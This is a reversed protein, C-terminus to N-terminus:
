APLRIRWIAYPLVAPDLRLTRFKGSWSVSSQVILDDLELTADDPLGYTWLPIELTTQQTERPDLTIAVLVVNSRDPTAKEFFMIRDDSSSLFTLGLQTQLAPNRRRIDNLQRIEDVINGPRQWDWARIQYKESDAYEERGPLAAAECLEFGCYVGWLGSLTAALAARILFGPRGSTQLFPPNIDPTNVFFNPGFFEAANTTLESLYAELEARTNRWTFYTYSQTFGIKALRYMVKPKTFAEALFITDPYEAKIDAIMWEWFPLPKTHPNDVRFIRVGEQVWFRVVDRLAEWLQPVSSPAYFDVNVIDEYKKPPNEAYRLSGDPRWAFWEKHETLWPHDPSCQIAFDLALELGHRAAAHLLARFEEKTGLDPHIDTHGGELSGIAYPSGPDDPGAKLSNNPGKRNTKGIPHIPPFYLVDFGMDRIRPLHRIVDGFTGHRSADDSMSRPFIEYWSAFRAAPREADLELPPDIRTAFPRRDLGAMLAATDAALLAAEQADSPEARLREALATEGAEALLILGEALDVATQVGAQSKKHLAERYTGFADRWAEITFEHRGLRTPIFSGTYRDNNILHMPVRQWGREGFARWLLDVRVADHGDCIIDAEVHVPTGVIRRAPFRGDDVIPTIKEIAFRPAAAAAEATQAVMLQVPASKELVQCIVDGPALDPQADPLLFLHRGICAPQLQHSTTPSHRTLDNNVTILYADDDAASDQSLCLVATIKAGPSSLLRFASWNFTDPLSRRTRNVEIVSASLDLPATSALRTFDQPSDRAPDMHRLSATEFGMPMMWGSGLLAAFRLARNYCASLSQPDPHQRGLRREFPAEPATIVPAVSRLAALEEWFWDARYDWWPLSSFVFDLGCNELSRLDARSTGPTWGLILTGPNGAHLETSLQRVLAPPLPATVIFRFGGFGLSAWDQLRPAWWAALASQDDLGAIAAHAADMESTFRRPDLADADPNSKFIRPNAEALVSAAAVRDLVVDLLPTLGAERVMTVIHALGSQADDPWELRANLRAHDASLFVSGSPGTKFVPALLLHDFGLAAIGDLKDPWASLPGLMLPSAYYISPCLSHHQRDNRALPFAAQRVAQDEDAM